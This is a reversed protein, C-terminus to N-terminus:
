KNTSVSLRNALGKILVAYKNKKLLQLGLDELESINPRFYAMPEGDEGEEADEYRVDTDKQLAKLRRQKLKEKHVVKDHVDREKLEQKISEFYSPKFDKVNANTASVESVKINLQSPDNIFQPIKKSLGKKKVGETSIDHNSRKLVFFDGDEDNGKEEKARLKDFTNSLVNANTRAFMKDIKSLPKKINEVEEDSDDDSLALKRTENDSEDDSIDDTQGKQKKEELEKQIKSVIFPKNKDLGKSKGLQIQPAGPLGMSKSFETLNYKDLNFIGKNDQRHVSRVYSVFAKQALYKLEVKESLFGNLKSEISLLKDPHPELIEYKLNHGDLLSLMGDKESPDVVLISKGEAQNRATRGVRHIYTHVDDPCDAQFVWNVAPFDLGRAAIDTALLAGTSRKCFDEFVELRTWQKMKGHLPFLPLGTHLLKFTEYVFRVQKCSSFFVVIKSDTHTRIFSFLMSLKKELPVICITQSLSQPTSVMDKEYVSVYEPDKLSLRALDRISKTQTASFLLTQRESPLNEIIANLNKTFGLDLIRDAEDLVLVKLNSCNFAYTEDMHQLLRGPTAILINMFNIKEKEQKVDRGGIILGASFSHHKGVVKLVDFIQIALERTPSLIIAGIGDNRTWRNRWLLELIPIIFSLTKGSGTRAAGLIDRGCLSHPLSARQIDTLSVFKGDVLGKMTLSSIPFDKFLTASPYHITHNKNEESPQDLTNALPNTGRPPAEKELREEIAKIEKLVLQLPKEKQEQQRDRYQKKQSSRNHYKEVPGRPANQDVANKASKGKKKNYPM